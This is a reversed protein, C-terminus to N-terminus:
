YGDGGGTPRKPIGGKVYESDPVELDQVTERNLQLKQASQEDARERSSETAGATSENRNSTM